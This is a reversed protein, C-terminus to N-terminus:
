WAPHLNVMSCLQMLLRARVLVKSQSDAVFSHVVPGANTVKVKHGENRRIASLSLLQLTPVSLNHM